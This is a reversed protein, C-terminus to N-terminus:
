ASRQVPGYRSGTRPSDCAGSGRGEEDPQRDSIRRRLQDHNEIPEGGLSVLVDGPEVGARAAPGEPYVYRVVVGASRDGAAAARMPLIGLFPREYPELKAALKLETEVRQDDRLLTDGAYRRGLEEKVQSARVIPRGDIEVIRDAPKLGAERAPSNPHCAAIVPEATSLNGALFSIGMVGPYLDEGQKLKPLIKLVHSAAIAFGIGSDYWRVGAIESRGEPSLPVLVGLVRGHVDILPGGYNNPSVAADTQIAKGWVRNLASVIGVSINTRDADFTRGVAIAWQGVRIEAEPVVEPVALPQDTEIKLLVIMRSHDTAVLQAPKRTGDPLRALISDPQNLFPLSSSVVYGQPDVVLGTAPASEFLVRGVRELGGVTEICVVSPAVREVAARFARGELTDVDDAARAPKPAAAICALVLAGALLTAIPEHSAALPKRSFLRVLPNLKPNV